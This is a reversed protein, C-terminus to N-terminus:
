YFPKVEKWLESYNKKMKIRIIKKIYIMLFFMVKNKITQNKKKM